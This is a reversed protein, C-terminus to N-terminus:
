RPPGIVERLCRSCEWTDRMGAKPRGVCLIGARCLIRELTREISADIAAKQAATLEHFTM